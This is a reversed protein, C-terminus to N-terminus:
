APLGESPEILSKDAAASELYYGFEYNSEAMSGVAATIDAVPDESIPGETPRLYTRPVGAEDMRALIEEHLGELAERFPGTRESSARLSQSARRAFEFVETNRAAAMEFDNALEAGASRELAVIMGDLLRTTQDIEVVLDAATREIATDGVVNRDITSERITTELSYDDRPPDHVIKGLKIAYLGAAAGVAGIGAAIFIGAGPILAGLCAGGGAATAVSQAANQAHFAKDKAAETPRAMPQLM